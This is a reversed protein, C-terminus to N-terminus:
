SPPPDDRQPSAQDGATTARFSEMSAQLTRAVELAQVAAQKLRRLYVFVVIGGVVAVALILLPAYDM